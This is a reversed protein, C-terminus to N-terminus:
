RCRVWIIEDCQLYVVGGEVCAGSYYVSVRQSFPFVEGVKDLLDPLENWEAFIDSALANVVFRLLAAVSVEPGTMGDLLKVVLFDRPEFLMLFLIDAGMSSIEVV